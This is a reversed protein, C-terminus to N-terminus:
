RDSSPAADLLQDLRVPDFGVVLEYADDTLFVLTPTESSGHDETMERRAELDVSIDREEFILEKAELVMRMLECSFCGPQTFLLIRRTM